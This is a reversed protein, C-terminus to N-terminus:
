GQTTIRHVNFGDHLSTNISSVRLNGIDGSTTVKQQVFYGLPRSLILVFTSIIVAFGLRDAKDRWRPGAGTMALAAALGTLIGSVVFNTGCHLHVALYSEGGNLRRIAEDLASKVEATSVDGIIRLGFPDSYGAVSRMPNERSLIQITAHELGHNRRVKSIWGTNLFTHVVDNMDAEM